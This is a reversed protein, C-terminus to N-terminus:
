AKSLHDLNKLEWKDYPDDPNKIYNKYFDEWVKRVEPNNWVIGTKNKYDDHNDILFRALYQEETEDEDELRVGSNILSAHEDLKEKIFSMFAMKRAKSSRQIKKIDAKPMNFIDRAAAVIMNFEEKFNEHHTPM